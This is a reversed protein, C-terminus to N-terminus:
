HKVELWIPRLVTILDTSVDITFLARSLFIGCLSPNSRLFSVIQGVDTGMSIDFVYRYAFPEKDNAM